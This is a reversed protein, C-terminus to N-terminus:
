IELQRTLRGKKKLTNYVNDLVGNIFSGSESTGFRKGLEVAEDISVKPPIDNLSSIEFVAMRLICRDLRSMRELRWNRSAGGILLDLEERNECVGLVLQRSFDEVPKGFHFNECILDLVAGPQDPNFELHFLVQVALERARRRKGM